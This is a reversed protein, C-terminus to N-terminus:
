SQWLKIADISDVLRIQDAKEALLLRRVTELQDLSFLKLMPKLADIETSIATSALSQTPWISRPDIGLKGLAASATERAGAGLVESQVWKKAAQWSVGGARALDQINHGQQELLAKIRNGEHAHENAMM